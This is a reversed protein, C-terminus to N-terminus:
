RHFREISSNGQPNYGCTEIKRIGMRQCMSKVGESIFERGQDSIIKQVSGLECILHDCLAEAVVAATHNPMPVVIPWRTFTDIMTLAYVNGAESEHFPGLIDIAIVERPRTSLIIDRLGAAIPRPTKRRKCPRCARVWREVDEALKPWYYRKTLQRKVKKASVHGAMLGNHYSALIFARM